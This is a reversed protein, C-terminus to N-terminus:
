HASKSTVARSQSFSRLARDYDALDSTQGVLHFQLPCLVACSRMSCSTM